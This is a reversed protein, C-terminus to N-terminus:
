SRTCLPATTLTIGHSSFLVQYAFTVIGGILLGDILGFIPACIHVPTSELTSKFNVGLQLAISALVTCGAVLM